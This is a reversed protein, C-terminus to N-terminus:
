LSDRMIQVAGRILKPADFRCEADARAAVGMRRRLAGDGILTELSRALGAADKPEVLFGTEGPRVIEGTGGTKGLVLPLGSAVAEFGAWPSCDALTPLVFADADRYLQVLRPDNSTLDNYVQVRPDDVPVPQPTVLHLRWGGVETSKAWDLLLEGGKRAFDGGVFLLDCVDKDPRDARGAPNWQTLDVGNPLVHIGVPNAGYDKVASDGAWQSMPFIGRANRYANARLGHTLRAAPPFRSPQWGYFDGFDYLQKPTADIQLFCPHRKIYDPLATQALSASIFTADFPGPRLADRLFFLPRLRNKIRDPLGPLRDLWPLKQDTSFVIWTPEIHLDAPFNKKWNIYNTRWGLGTDMILAFRLPRSM